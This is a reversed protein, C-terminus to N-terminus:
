LTVKCASLKAWDLPAKLCHTSTACRGTSVSGIAAESATCSLVCSQWFGAVARLSCWIQLFCPVPLHRAWQRPVCAGQMPQQPDHQMYSLTLLSRYAGRVNTRHQQSVKSTCSPHQTTCITDSHAVVPCHPQVVNDDRPIGVAANGYHLGAARCLALYAGQLHAAM